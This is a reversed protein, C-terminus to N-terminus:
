NHVMDPVPMAALKEMFTSHRVTDFAKSADFTILHVYPSDALKNVITSTLKILAATTSGTPRFAYQDQLKSTFNSHNLVPYLFNITLIKEFLRSLIPTVSIPRYEHCGTPKSVKPIPTIISTKWQTPVFSQTLSLGYLKSLPASISPAALRLFWFPLEDPGPSTHKLKDLYRFIIYESFVNSKSFTDCVTIKSKPELYQNDWSIKGFYNNLEDATLVSSQDYKNVQSPKLITNVAQWLSRTGRVTNSLLKSNNFSIKRSILDTIADAAQLRGSRM